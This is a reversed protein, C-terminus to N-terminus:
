RMINPYKSVGKILIRRASAHVEPFLDTAAASAPIIPSQRAQNTTPFFFSNAQREDFHGPDSFCTPREFKEKRPHWHLVLPVAM